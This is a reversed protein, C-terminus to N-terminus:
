RIIELNELPVFVTGVSELNIEAGWAIIGSALRQPHRPLSVIEGVANQHPARLVRVWDGISLAESPEALAPRDPGPTFCFVEPRQAQGDGARPLVCVEQGACANLLEFAEAHMPWDGFGETVIVSLGSEQIVPVLDGRVSGVIVGRVRNEVAQAIVGADLTRGGLLVTGVHEGTIQGVLLPVDNGPVASVLTTRLEPGCGWAGQVLTGTTEIVVGRDAILDVVQGPYLALLDVNKPALEILMRADHIGVIQGVVPSVVERKFLVGTRAIAMDPEVIDGIRKIMAKRARAPRVGLARDVAIWQYGQPVSAEVVVSDAAVRDGMRRVVHGPQALTRTRRITVSHGVLREVYPRTAYLAQITELM